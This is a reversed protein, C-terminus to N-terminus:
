RQMELLYMVVDEVEQATLITKGILEPKTRAGSREVYFGPMITEDGFMRKPDVLIARLESKTFREGVWNLDPGINGLFGVAEVDFNHHCAVCNGRKEDIFVELGRFAKGRRNLLPKRIDYDDNWKVDEPAVVKLPKEAKAALAPGGAALGVALAAAGLLASIAQSRM